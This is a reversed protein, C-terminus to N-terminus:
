DNVNSHDSLAKYSTCNAFFRPILMNPHAATLMNTTPKPNEREQFGNNGFDM